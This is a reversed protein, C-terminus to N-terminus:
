PKLYQLASFIATAVTATSVLIATIIQWHRKLFPEFVNYGKATLRIQGRVEGTSRVENDTLRIYDEDQLLFLHRQLNGTGVGDFKKPVTDQLYQFTSCSNIGVRENDERIKELIYHEIKNISM